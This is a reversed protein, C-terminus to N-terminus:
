SLLEGGLLVVRSPVDRPERRVLVLHPPLGFDSNQDTDQNPEGKSEQEEPDDANESGSRIKRVVCLIAGETVNATTTM